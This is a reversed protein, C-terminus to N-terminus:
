FAFIIEGDDDVPMIGVIKIVEAILGGKFGGEENKFVTKYHEYDFAKYDEKIGMVNFLRDTSCQYSTQNNADLGWIDILPKKFYVACAYFHNYFPAIYLTVKKSKIVKKEGTLTKM